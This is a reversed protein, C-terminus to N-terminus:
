SKYVAENGTENVSISTTAETKAGTDSCMFSAQQGLILQKQAWYRKSFGESESVLRIGMRLGTTTMEKLKNGTEKGKEQM